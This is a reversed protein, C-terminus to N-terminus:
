GCVPEEIRTQEETGGELRGASPVTWANWALYSECMSPFSTELLQQCAVFLVAERKGREGEGKKGGGERAGWGDKSRVGRARETGGGKREGGREEELKKEKGRKREWRGM